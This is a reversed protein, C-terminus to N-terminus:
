MNLLDINLFLFNLFSKLLQLPLNKEFPAPLIKWNTLIGNTHAWFQEQVKLEQLRCHHFLTWLASRVHSTM